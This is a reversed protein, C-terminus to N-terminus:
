IQYGFDFSDFERCAGIVIDSNDQGFDYLSCNPNNIVYQNANTVCDHNTELDLFAELLNHTIKNYVLYAHSFNQLYCSLSLPNIHQSPTVYIVDVKGNQILQQVDCMLYLQDYEIKQNDGYITIGIASFQKQKLYNTIQSVVGNTVDDHKLTLEPAIFTINEHQTFTQILFEKIKDIQLQIIKQVVESTTNKKDITLSTYKDLIQEPTLAIDVEISHSQVIAQDLNAQTLVADIFEKVQDVSLTKGEKSLFTVSKNIPVSFFSPNIKQQGHCNFLLVKM